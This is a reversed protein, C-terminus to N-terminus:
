YAGTRKEVEIRRAKIEDEIEKLVAAEIKDMENSYMSDYAAQAKAEIAARAEEQAEQIRLEDSPVEEITVEPTSTASVSTSPKVYDEVNTNHLVYYAGGILGLAGILLAIRKM